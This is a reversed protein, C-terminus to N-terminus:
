LAVGVNLTLVEVIWTKVIVRVPLTVEEVSLPDSVFPCSMVKLMQWSPVPDRVKTHGVLTVPAPVMM